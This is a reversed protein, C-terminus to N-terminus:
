IIALHNGKAMEDGDYHSLAGQTPSVADGVNRVAEVENQFGQTSGATSGTASTKQRVFYTELIKTITKTDPFREAPEQGAWFLRPGLLTFYAPDNRLEDLDPDEEASKMHKMMHDYDRMAHPDGVERKTAADVSLGREWTM